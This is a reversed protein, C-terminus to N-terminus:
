IQLVETWQFLRSAIVILMGSQPGPVGDWTVFSACTLSVASELDPAPLIQRPGFCEGNWLALFSDFPLIESSYQNSFFCVKIDILWDIVLHIFIKLFRFVLPFEFMPGTDSLSNINFKTLTIM